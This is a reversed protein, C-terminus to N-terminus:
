NYKAEETRSTKNELYRPIAINVVTGKGWESHVSITGGHDQIIQRVVSLGLGTGESKTTFFPDYIRRLYRTPIGKGTDKVQIKVRNGECRTALILRGNKGMAELANKILNLLVQHLLKPDGSVLSNTCQFQLEVEIKKKQIIEGMVFLIEHILQHVDVKRRRPKKPRAISLINNLISELNSVQLRIIAAYNRLRPDNPLKKELLRAFGGISVLPNRIEHAIKASMEGIVALREAKVLRHSSEELRRYAEQLEKIQEELKRYLRANEIALSAQNAFLKLSEIEESSMLEGTIRNDAVIVGLMEQKTILPVVAFTDTGLIESLSKGNVKLSYKRLRKVKGKEVYYARNDLLSRILINTRNKLPVRIGRVMENVARDYGQPDIYYKKVIEKLSYLQGQLNEWIRHAEAEDAPGIALHGKLMKEQENYLFLFARNFRLGEGATISILIVRLIDDLIYTSHLIENLENLKSLELITRRLEFELEKRSTIDKLIESSGKPRGQEDRILTRTLDVYVLRGNKDVRQTEYKRLFGKKKLEDRIFSIEGLEILEPPVLKQVPQGIIEDASYGLLDEAGKNWSLIRDDNDLFFIADASTDIISAFLKEKERLAVQQHEAATVDVGIKLMGALQGDETRVPLTIIELYIEEGSKPHRRHLIHRFMDQKRLNKPPPCDSCPSQFGWFAKYCLEGAPHNEMSFTHGTFQNYWLLRYDKDILYLHVPYYGVFEDLQNLIEIFKHLITVSM